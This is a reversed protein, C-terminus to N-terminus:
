QWNVIAALRCSVASFSSLGDWRLHDVCPYILLSCTSSQKNTTKSLNQKKKGPSPTTKCPDEKKNETAKSTNYSISLKTAAFVSSSVKAKGPTGTLLGVLRVNLRMTHWVNRTGKETIVTQANKRRILFWNSFSNGDPFCPKETETTILRALRRM